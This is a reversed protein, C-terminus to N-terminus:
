STVPQDGQIYWDTDPMHNRDGGFRGDPDYPNASGPAFPNWACNLSSSTSDKYPALGTNCNFTGIAMDPPVTFQANPDWHYNLAAWEMVDHFIYGAGAVGIIGPNLSDNPDSNGVWVGLTMYPTYGATVIDNPGTAGSSTGTKGAIALNNLGNDDLVLPNHWKFFPYRARNDTLVSTVMYAAQPSIAQQTQPMTPAQWLLTGDAREVRLISRPPARRGLNALTAYAGALQLLPIEQGGLATTPGMRNKSLTTVGLRQAMALFAASTDPTAGVFEMGETAPINFSADFQRRLPFTGSFNASEYDHPVYWGKCAPAAPDVFNPDPAPVPFCIPTDQLMIGPDWGMQFATAYMLPKTASGMSRYISTTINNKGLVHPDNSNYDVSGVMALIDGNRQDLAVLAGNHANGNSPDELPLNYNQAYPIPYWTETFPHQIYHQIVSVAEQQLSLDLTTYIRLGATSLNQVGFQDALVNSVYQVFHPALDAAAEVNNGSSSNVGAWHYIKQNILINAVDQMAQNYDAQTFSLEPHGQLGYQLVNYLVLEARCYVLWEHGNQPNLYWDPGYTPIHNGCDAPNGQFPNSWKSMPCPASACSFQIPLFESPANPLGALIAAQAWSLQQNALTYAGKITKPQLGFFNRAAAEIGINQDGYPITNLYMELIFAKTYQQTVGYALIAENIKRQFTQNTDNLVINKVLQQTITSGGQSTSGSNVDAFAARLTGYFDIGVNSYFSHDETDITAVQLKPDIQQLPAYLQFGTDSRAVYITKGNRDYIISNQQNKLSAIAQIDSEHRQYYGVAYVSGAGGGMVIGTLLVAVLAITLAYVVPNIRERSHRWKRALLRARSRRFGASPKRRVQPTAPVRYATPVGMSGMGMGGAGGAGRMRATLGSQPGPPTSLADGPQFATPQAGFGSSGTAGISGNASNFGNRGARATLDSLRRSISRSADRARRAMQALSRRMGQPNGEPPPGEYADYAGSPGPPTPIPPYAANANPNGTPHPAGPAPQRRILGDPVAPNRGSNGRTMSGPMGPVGPVGPAPPTPYRGTNGRSARPPQGAVGPYGPYGPYGPNGQQGGYEEQQNGWQGYQGYQGYQDNRDQNAANRYPDDRTDRGM